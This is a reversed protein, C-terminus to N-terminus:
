WLIFNESTETHMLFKQPRTIEFIEGKVLIGCWIFNSWFLNCVISVWDVVLKTTITATQPGLVIDRFCIYTALLLNMAMMLLRIWQVTLCHFTEHEMTSSSHTASVEDYSDWSEGCGRKIKLCNILIKDLTIICFCWFISFWFLAIHKQHRDLM